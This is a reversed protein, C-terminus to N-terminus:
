VRTEKVHRKRKEELQILSQDLQGSDTKRSLLGVAGPFNNSLHKGSNVDPAVSKLESTQLAIQCVPRDDCLISVLTTSALNKSSFIKQSFIGLYEDWVFRNASLM